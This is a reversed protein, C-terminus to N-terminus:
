PTGAEPPPAASAARDLAQIAPALRQLLALGPEASYDRAPDRHVTIRLVGGEGVVVTLGKDM